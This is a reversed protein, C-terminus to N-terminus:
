WSEVSRSLIEEAIKEIAEKRGDLETKPTQGPVDQVYYNATRILNAERWIERNKVRDKFTVEVAITVRYEEALSQDTAIGFVANRYGVIKGHIVADASREDVVKLKNDTVFRQIVADTVEQELTYETTGNEFLPVAITKLHTPLLGTSTTYGCGGILCVVGLAAAAALTPRSIL